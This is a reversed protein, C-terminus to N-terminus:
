SKQWLGQSLLRFGMEKLLVIMYQDIFNPAVPNNKSLAQQVTLSNSQTLQDILDRYYWRNKKSLVKLAEDYFEKQMNLHNKLHEYVKQYGTIPQHHGRGLYEIKDEFVLSSVSEISQHLANISGELSNPSLFYDLDGIFIWSNKYAYYSISDDTHGPTELAWLHVPLEWGNFSAAGSRLRKRDVQPEFYKIQNQGLNIQGYYKKFNEVALSVATDPFIKLALEIAKVILPAYKNRTLFDKIEVSRFVERLTKSFFVDPNDLRDKAHAHHWSNGSVEHLIAGNNATHDLHWHSNLINITKMSHESLYYKILELNSETCGPDILFSSGKLKILYSNPIWHGKVLGDEENGRFLVLSDTESVIKFNSFIV